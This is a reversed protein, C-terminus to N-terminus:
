ENKLEDREIEPLFPVVKEILNSKIMLRLQKIASTFAYADSNGHAKVVPKNIGFIMAGGVEKSDMRKAFRKLGKKLFLGGIKSRLSSYVEQKLMKGM